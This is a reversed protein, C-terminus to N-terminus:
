AKAYLELVKARLDKCKRVDNEIASQETPTLGRKVELHKQVQRILSEAQALAERDTLDEPQLRDETMM